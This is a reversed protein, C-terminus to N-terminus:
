APAGASPADLPWFRRMLAGVGLVVGCAMVYTGVGVWDHLASHTAAEAGIRRAALVTAVVRVLNGAMAVPVVTAVLVVRRLLTRETFYALFVGLPVLTVLSTIGSCAEAVFLQEGGPLELVNGQRLVPVGMVGLVATGLGSVLVQLRVIVPAIVSDPIPLMFILYGIAFGLERLWAAGRAYLVAGAVAAVMGLGALWPMSGALGLVYLIGAGSLLALGRGDREIPLTPLVFRKASAAWLAVLPVVYCHSLYDVRSWVEAMALWGPTLILALGALLGWDLPRMRM